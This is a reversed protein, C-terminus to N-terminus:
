AGRRQWFPPDNRHWGEYQQRKRGLARCPQVGSVPMDWTPKRQTFDPFSCGHLFGVLLAVGRGTRFPPKGKLARIEGVLAGLHRPHSRAQRQDRKPEGNGLEKVVQVLLPRLS